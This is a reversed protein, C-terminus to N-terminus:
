RLLGLYWEVLESGYLIAIATGLALFTGFAIDSGLKKKKLVMLLIGVLAGSIYAFMLAVLINPWGLWVGMLVGMRVDGGGIWKGKSVLYQLLFFGGGLLAGLLMKFPCNALCFYNFYLGFIVGSWVIEPLIIKYLWDYIFIILLIAALVIDRHLKTPDFDTQSLHHWAIFVFILPTILEVWLFHLPIKSQCVRCRGRLILFSLVPINEYWKLTRRCSHCMSRGRAVKINEHRRWIWSNLFSGLALGLLFLILYFFNGLILYVQYEM